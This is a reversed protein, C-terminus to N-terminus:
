METSSLLFSIPIKLASPALLCLMVSTKLASVNMVPANAPIMPITVARIRSIGPLLIMWWTNDDLSILADSGIVAAAPSMTREIASVSSAPKNGDLFAAFLSGTAANLDSYCVM